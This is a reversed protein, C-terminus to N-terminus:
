GEAEPLKIAIVLRKIPDGKLKSTFIEGQLNHKAEEKDPFVLEINFDFKLPLISELMKEIMNEPMM